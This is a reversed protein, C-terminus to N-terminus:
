PASAIRLVGTSEFYKYTEFAEFHVNTPAMWRMLRDGYPRLRASCFTQWSPSAQNHAQFHRSNLETPPATQAGEVHCTLSKGIHPATVVRM